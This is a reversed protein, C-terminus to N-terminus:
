RKPLRAVRHQIRELGKAVDAHAVSALQLGQRERKGLCRGGALQHALVQHLHDQIYPHPHVYLPM